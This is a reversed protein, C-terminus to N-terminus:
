HGGHRGGPAPASKIGLAARAAAIQFRRAEQSDAGQGAVGVQHGGSPIELVHHEVGAGDLAEVLRRGDHVLSDKGGLVLHVPPLGHLDGHVPSLRPETRPVGGAYVRAAIRLQEEGHDDRSLDSWPTELLLAAPAGSGTHALTQAVALALGGGASDGSLVWAGPRLVDTALMDDVAHLVDEVAAPYRHRPALRYHIMAGAVRSRRSVEELWDWTQPTEGQVYAGGHLHVIAGSGALEQDIWTVPVHAHRVRTVRAPDAVARPPTSPRQSALIRLSRVLSM